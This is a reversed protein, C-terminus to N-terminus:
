ERNLAQTARPRRRARALSAHAEPMISKVEAMAVIPLFRCFLLFLTFFLGFSGVFMAVDVYSPWYLRWMSPLFTRNLSQIVIVFREWWMGINAINAVIFLVWPNLRFKRFWLLQPAVCNCFILAWFSFAYPGDKM